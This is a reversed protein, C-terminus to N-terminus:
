NAIKNQIKIALPQILWGPKRALNMIIPKINETWGSKVKNEAKIGALV